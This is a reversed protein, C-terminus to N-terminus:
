KISDLMQKEIIKRHTKAFGELMVYVCLQDHDSSGASGPFGDLVKIGDESVVALVYYGAHELTEVAEAHQQETWQDTTINDSNINM